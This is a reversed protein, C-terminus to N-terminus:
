AIEVSVAFLITKEDQEFPQGIFYARAQALTIGVAMNTIYSSGDDMTVRYAPMTAAVAELDDVGFREEAECAADILSQM